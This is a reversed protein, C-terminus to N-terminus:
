AGGALNRRWCLNDILRTKGFWVALAILLGDEGIADISELTDPHVGAVYDIRSLPQSAIRQEVQGLLTLVDVQGQQIM